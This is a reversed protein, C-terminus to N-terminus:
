LDYGGVDLNRNEDRRQTEPSLVGVRGGGASTVAGSQRQVVNPCVDHREFPEYRDFNFDLM